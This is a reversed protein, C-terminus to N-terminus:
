ASAHRPKGNQEWDDAMHSVLDKVQAVFETSTLHADPSGDPLGSCIKPLWAQIAPEPYTLLTDLETTIARLKDATFAWELSGTRIADQWTAYKEDWGEMFLSRFLSRAAM